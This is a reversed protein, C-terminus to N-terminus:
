SGPTVKSRQTEREEETFIFARLTSLIQHSSFATDIVAQTLKRLSGSCVAVGKSKLCCSLLRESDPPGYPQMEEPPELPSGKRAEQPNQPDAPLTGKKTVCM